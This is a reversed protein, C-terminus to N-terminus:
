FALNIGAYVRHAPSVLADSGLRFVRYDLRLRLPGFLTIKVGGGANMGISTDSHVGLEEHYVGIGSTVYPQFGFIAVPTQLLVNGMGTTLSPALAYQDDSTNAYEFEFGVILVSVGIALGKTPRNAPSLNAGVFATADAEARRPTVAILAAAVLVAAIPVRCPSM